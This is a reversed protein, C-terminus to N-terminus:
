VADTAQLDTMSDLIDGVVGPIATSTAISDSFLSHEVVTAALRIGAKTLEKLVLDESVQQIPYQITQNENPV